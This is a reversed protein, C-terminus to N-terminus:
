EGASDDGDPDEGTILSQAIQTSVMDGIMASAQAAEEPSSGESAAKLLIMARLATTFEDIVPQHEAILARIRTEKDADTLSTDDRITEAQPELEEMVAELAEGATQVRNVVAMQEPTPAAAPAPAAPPAPPVPAVQQALAPSAALLLTSAALVLRLSM